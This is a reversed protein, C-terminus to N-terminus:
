GDEPELNERWAPSEVDIWVRKTAARMKEYFGQAYSMLEMHSEVAESAEAPQDALAHLAVRALRFCLGSLNMPTSFWPWRHADEWLALYQKQRLVYEETLQESQEASWLDERTLFVILWDTCQEFIDSTDPQYPELAMYTCFHLLFALERKIRSDPAELGGQRLQRIVPQSTERETAVRVATKAAPEAFEASSVHKRSLRRFFYRLGM